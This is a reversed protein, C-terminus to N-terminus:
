CGTRTRRYTLCERIKAMSSHVSVEYFVPVVNTPLRYLDNGADADTSLQAQARSAADNLSAADREKSRQPLLHDAVGFPYPQAGAGLPPAARPSPPSGVPARPSLDLGRAAARERLLPGTHLRQYHPAQSGSCCAAYSAALSCMLLVSGPGM